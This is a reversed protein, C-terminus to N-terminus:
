FVTVGVWMAVCAGLPITINDDLVYGRVVPKVGDAVAAVIGGMLAPVTPVFARALLTSFGFMVVLVSGRKVQRLEGSGLLGSLPDGLTLMFMAPLAIRPEFLLGAVGGGVVYLAYGAPNDREYARTLEDFVRWELGGHLRLSELVLVTVISGVLLLRVRHWTLFGVGLWSDLLYMGPVVSGAAHVVRRKLEAAM